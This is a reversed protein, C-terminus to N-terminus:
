LADFKSCLDAFPGRMEDRIKDESTYREETEIDLRMAKKLYERKYLQGLVLKYKEKSVEPEEYGGRRSGVDPLARPTFGDWDEGLVRLKIMNEVTSTHEQTIVPKSKSASKFEPTSQLLSDSPLNKGGAGGRM